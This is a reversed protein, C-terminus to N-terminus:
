FHEHRQTILVRFHDGAGPIALLHHQIEDAPDACPSLYDRQTLLQVNDGPIRRALEELDSFNVDATIDCRGAMSLIEEADMLTHAFYGRLSGQPKRYYLTDCTSGYDINVFVGCKWSPQWSTLWRHFSDHVEVIQNERAWTSFVGSTPLHPCEREQWCIAGSQVSLGLEYWSGSCYRFRRAPFADALENCFIFARGGAHRLAAEINPFVRVMSGGVLAQLHRLRPSIDVMYYRLRLRGWFGVARGFACAMGANGGGIEIVPLNRGFDRCASRWHEALRRAPLDSMSAATSFDGRFGIDPIHATYYGDQEDYLALEMFRDCRLWNEQALIFPALNVPLLSFFIPLDVLSNWCASYPNCRM